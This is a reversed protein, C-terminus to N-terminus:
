SAKEEENSLRNLDEEPLIWVIHSRNVALFGTEYAPEGSQSFVTADTVALYAETNNDLTNKLRDDPRIYVLGKIQHTTTQIIVSVPKKSIVQTFIKGKDDFHTLM